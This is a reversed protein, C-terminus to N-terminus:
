IVYFGAVGSNCTQGGTPPYRANCFFFVSRVQLDVRNKEVVEMKLKGWGM